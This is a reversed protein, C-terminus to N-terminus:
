VLLGDPNAAALKSEKRDAAPDKGGALLARAEDRQQRAAALGIEPNVGLSLRKEKGGDRYKVRCHRRGNPLVELYMGLGDTLRARPAGPPCNASRCQADTLPM